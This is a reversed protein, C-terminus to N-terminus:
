TTWIDIDSQRHEADLDESSVSGDQEFRPTLLVTADDDYERDPRRVCDVPQIPSCEICSCVGGEFGAIEVTWGIVGQIRYTRDDRAGDPKGSDWDRVSTSRCGVAGCIDCTRLHDQDGPRFQDAAVTKNDRTSLACDDCNVDEEAQLRLFGSTPINPNATWWRQRRNSDAPSTM